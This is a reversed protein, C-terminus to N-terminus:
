NVIFRQLCDIREKNVLQHQSHEIVDGFISKFMASERWWNETAKSDFTFM